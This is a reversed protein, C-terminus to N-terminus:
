VVAYGELGKEIVLWQKVDVVGGSGEDNEERSKIQSLPLWAEESGFRLLLAKETERVVSDYRLKM